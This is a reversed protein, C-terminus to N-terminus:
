KLLMLAKKIRKISEEKGFVWLLETPSPSAEKGSLAVRVSWFVDGFSFGANNVIRNLILVLGTDNKETWERQATELVKLTEKLGKKTKEKDSKKFILLKPKYKPKKFYFDFEKIDALKEIRTQEVNIVKELFENSIKEFDKNLNKESRIIELLESPKKQRIYYGNLDNLKKIDFIAPSKGMHEILFKKELEKLSFTEQTGGKGLHWGLLVMFNILAEPLYGESRYEAISTASFRKSLKTHDPNLTLPIHAYKPIKFGFAKQLLYHKPTNSFHDQGRIVHTIKMEEDDIVVAFHYTPIGNKRMIVFDEVNASIKGLILDNEPLSILYGEKKQGGEKSLAIVKKFPVKYKDIIKKVDLWLAGDKKYALKQKELIKAYKKYVDLREMQHFPGENWNLGLWKFGKIIEEESEVTSRSIDTDEFRLIFKGNNKRAFLYNFLATRATGIHLKGTPSPAIRVRIQSMIKAEEKDRIAEAM